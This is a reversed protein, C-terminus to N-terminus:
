NFIKLTSDKFLAWSKPTLTHTKPNFTLLSNYLHDYVDHELKPKIAKEADTYFTQAWDIASSLLMNGAADKDGWAKLALALFSAKDEVDGHDIKLIPQIWELKTATKYKPNSKILESIMEDILSVAEKNVYDIFMQKKDKIKADNQKKTAASKIRSQKKLEKDYSNIIDVITPDIGRMFEDFIKQDAKFTDLFKINNPQEYGPAFNMENKYYEKINENTEDVRDWFADRLESYEHIVTNLYNYLTENEELSDTDVLSYFKKFAYSLAQDDVWFEDTQKILIKFDENFEKPTFSTKLLIDRFSNYIKSWKNEKIRQIKFEETAELLMRLKM